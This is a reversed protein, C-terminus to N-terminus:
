RHHLHSLRSCRQRKRFSLTTQAHKAAIAILTLWRSLASAANAAMSWTRLV